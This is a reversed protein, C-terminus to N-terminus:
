PTVEFITGKDNQGGAYTTGYLKGGPGFVLNCDPLGGDSLNMFSYLNVNTWQAGQTAPPLLEFVVGGGAEGGGETTGYLNGLKDFILSSEPLGGDREDLFDYLVSETWSGGKAAPPSLKFVTGHGATGGLLTTSYAAGDKDFIFAAAPEGGDSGNSFSFLVAEVWEGSNSTSPRMGFVTGDYVSAGGSVTTGLLVNQEEDFAVGAVPGMGDGAGGFTHLVNFEWTGSHSSAPTLKFVTGGGLTGGSLATGYLAGSKDFTLNGLPNGGDSGGTFAYLISETWSGGSDQPPVLKYVTGCGTVGQYFCTGTGGGVTVGYLSGTSDRIVGSFPGAGDTGGTFSYLVTEKWAEGRTAPPTVKFVTGWGFTGGASTTSYAGTEDPVLGSMSFAGDTPSGVFSYLVNETQGRGLAPSLLASAALILLVRAKCKLPSDPRSQM